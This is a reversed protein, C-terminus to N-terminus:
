GAGGVNRRDFILTSRLGGLEVPADGARGRVARRDFEACLLM